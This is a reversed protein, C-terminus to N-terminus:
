AATRPRRLRRELLWAVITVVLVFPVMVPLHSIFFSPWPPPPTTQISQMQGYAAGLFAIGFAVVGAIITLPYPVRM